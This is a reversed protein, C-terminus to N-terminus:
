IMPSVHLDSSVIQRHFDFSSFPLGDTGRFPGGKVDSPGPISCKVNINDQLDLFSDEVPPGMAVRVLDGVNHNSFIQNIVGKGPDRGESM